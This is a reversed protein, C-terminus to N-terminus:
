RYVRVKKEQAYNERYTYHFYNFKKRYLVVSRTYLIHEIFYVRVRIYAYM